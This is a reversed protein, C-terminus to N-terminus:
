GLGPRPEILSDHPPGYSGFPKDDDDSDKRVVRLHKRMRRRRFLRWFSMLHLEPRAVGFWALGFLLGSLHAINNVGGSGGGVIAVLEIVGFFLVCYKAKVPVVFYLYLVRDPFLLGYGLLLGYIAGSAGITPINFFVSVLGAGIGTFLYYRLFKQAGWVRELDTGFWWLALMNLLLHFFERHIFLYTIPQWLAWDHRVAQPTIGLLSVLVDAYSEGVPAYIKGKVMFLFFWVLGNVWLFIRVVQTLGGGDHVSRKSGRSGDGDYYSIRPCL